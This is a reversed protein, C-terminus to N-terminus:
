GLHIQEADVKVHQEAIVSANKAQITMAGDVLQRMSGAQTEDVESVYCINLKLKQTVRDIVADWAEAIVTIQEAQTQLFRGITSFVGVRAEGEEAAVSLRRSAVTVDGPSTLAMGEGATIHLRGERVRLTLDGDFGVVAPGSGRRELVSLIHVAGQEGLSLLVEDGVEPEVLCGVARRAEYRGSGVAVLVARGEIREVRGSELYAESRVVKRALSSM